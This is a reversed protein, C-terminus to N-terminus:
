YQFYQKKIHQIASLSKWGYVIFFIFGGAMPEMQPDAYRLFGLTIKPSMVIFACHEALWGWFGRYFFTTLYPILAPDSHFFLFHLTWRLLGCTRM